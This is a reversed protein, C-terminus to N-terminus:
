QRRRRDAHIFIVPNRQDGHPYPHSYGSRIRIREALPPHMGRTRLVPQFGSGGDIGKPASTIVLEATM